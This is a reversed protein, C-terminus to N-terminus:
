GALTRPMWRCFTSWDKKSSHSSTKWPTFASEPRSRFGPQLVFTEYARCTQPRCPSKSGSPRTRRLNAPSGISVASRFRGHMEIMIAMEDGVTERVAEVIRLSRKLEAASLEAAASGFPDLKLGRYGRAVVAAALDAIQGPEREGQYWGNAYAPVEGRFEGGLLRWLPQGTAQGILDWCAMDIASLASQAVEGPRGYETWQVNFAMRELDFPSSGVVYRDSLERICALLTGTKNVMRVEGVGTLGTDTELEVFTLERWPAGVVTTIVREIKM